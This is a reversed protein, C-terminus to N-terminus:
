VRSHEHPCTRSAEGWVCGHSFSWPFGPAPPPTVAGRVAVGHTAAELGGVCATGGGGRWRLLAPLLYSLIRVCVRARRVGACVMIVSRLAPTALSSSPLIPPPSHATKLGRISTPAPAHPRVGCHLWTPLVAPVRPCPATVVGRAAVGHTAAELGSVCAAVCGWAVPPPGPSLSVPLCACVGSVSCAVCM